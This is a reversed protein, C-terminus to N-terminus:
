QPRLEEKGRQQRPRLKRKGKRPRTRRTQGIRSTRIRKLSPLLRKNREISPRNKSYRPQMITRRLGGAGMETMRVVKQKQAMLLKQIVKSFQRRLEKGM